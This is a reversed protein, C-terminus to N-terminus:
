RLAVGSNVIICYINIIRKENEKTKKFKYKNALCNNFYTIYEFLEM